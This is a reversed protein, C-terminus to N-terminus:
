TLNKNNISGDLDSFMAEDNQTDVVNGPTSMMNLPDRNNASERQTLNTSDIGSSM